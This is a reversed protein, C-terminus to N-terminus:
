IVRENGGDVPVQAGTTKGFTNGAMACVMEAVDHSTVEKKLLNNTKYEEVTLGYHRARAQLVEPTWIGTDFVANPHVTNIRIGASAWELAAIRALQTFGAKAVSYAGAGPGPAPVNKSGIMVVSPDQGQQLVPFSLSMIRQHSTLNLLLSKDWLAPDMKALTSSPPFIGANCVLIDMGGFQLITQDIAQQIVDQRTVDGMIGLFGPHKIMNTVAPNLDIVTVCAGQKLLHEACAKGIGSAGGTVLATKGQFQPRTTVKGLKAQELEWYEVEFIDREPLAQWQELGEAWQVADITHHVIDEIILTEKITQGFTLIGKGPWVAWCPIPPLCRQEPTRNREFYAFYERKYAEVCQEVSDERLILPIRKTRIVHDPTLPGRTALAEVDNRSAFGCAEPSTDCHVVVPYGAINSLQHRLQAIVQTSVPQDPNKKVPRNLAGNKELYSEAESVLQIMMDYSAKADDNFTFVGHNMLIIGDLQSWDLDRTMEYIKRALVFGPMVYPVLLVRNGYIKRIHDEGHPTNTVAVVADAHTHDVFKFPIIAHLIAEVSPNPAYPDLMAARQSTVMQLDTLSELKAMKLLTEQKVPAFGAAEITALDWGSGKVFLVEETEGFLNTVTSKVSTNGGGHLVLASEKGLLRSTYVRMQLADQGVNAAEEANWLNKM